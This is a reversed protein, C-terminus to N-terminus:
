HKCFEVEHLDKFASDALDRITEAFYILDQYRLRDRGPLYRIIDENMM